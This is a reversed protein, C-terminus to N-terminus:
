RSWMPPAKRVVARLGKRRLSWGYALGVALGALHAINAVRNGEVQAVVFFLDYLVFLIVMVWLPAPIVFFVLVTLTPALVVLTGMVGQLAGSAGLAYSVDNFLLKM